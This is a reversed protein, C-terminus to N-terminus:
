ANFKLTTDGLRITDGDSLVKSEVREGNVLTGNSSKLDKVIWVGDPGLELAAHRRSVRPDDLVLNSSDDRGIVQGSAFEYQKGPENGEQVTLVGKQPGHGSMLTSDAAPFHGSITADSAEEVLADIADPRSLFQGALDIVGASSMGELALYHRNRELYLLDHVGAQLCSFGIYVVGGPTAAGSEMHLARDLILLRGAMWQVEESGVFGGAEKAAHGSASLKDLAAQVGAGDVAPVDKFIGGVIASLWQPSPPTDKIMRLIADPTIPSMDLEADSAYAALVRKRYIDVIAGLVVAEDVAIEAQFDINRIVTEGINQRLAELLEDVAAPYRVRLGDQVTTLSVPDGGDPDRYITQEFLDANDSLYVRTFAETRALLDLVKQVAPFINGSADMIGAAIMVERTVQKAESVALGAYPSVSSMGAHLLDGLASFYEPALTFDVNSEM